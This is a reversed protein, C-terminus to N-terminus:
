ASSQISECCYLCNGCGDKCIMYKLGNIIIYYRNKSLFDKGYSEVYWAELKTFLEYEKKILPLIDDFTRNDKYIKKMESHIKNIDNQIENIDYIQLSIKQKKIKHEEMQIITYITNDVSLFFKFEDLNM